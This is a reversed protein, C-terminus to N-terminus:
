KLCRELQAVCPSGFVKGPHKWNVKITNNSKNSERIQKRDDVIITVGRECALLGSPVVFVFNDGIKHESVSFTTLLAKDLMSYIGIRYSARINKTGYENSNAALKVKFRVQHDCAGVKIPSVEVPRLDMAFVTVCTFVAFLLGTFRIILYDSKGM